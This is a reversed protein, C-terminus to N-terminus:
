QFLLRSKSTLYIEKRFCILFIIVLGHKITSSLKYVVQCCNWWVTVNAIIKYALQTQCILIERQFHDKSFLVHCKLSGLDKYAFWYICSLQMCSTCSSPMLHTSLAKVRLNRVKTSWYEMAVNIFNETNLIVIAQLFIHYAKHKSEIEMSYM